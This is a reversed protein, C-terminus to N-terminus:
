VRELRSQLNHLAHSIEKQAALAKRARTERSLACGPPMPKDFIGPKQYPKHIRVVPIPKEPAPEEKEVTPAQQGPPKDKIAPKQKVPPAQWLVGPEETNKLLYALVRNQDAASMKLEQSAEALGQIASTHSSLHTAYDGIAAAFRELAQETTSMRHETSEIKDALLRGTRKEEQIVPAFIGRHLTRIGYGLERRYLFVALLVLVVISITLGPMSLFFLLPSDVYPIQSGATGRIYLFGAICAGTLFLLVLARKM